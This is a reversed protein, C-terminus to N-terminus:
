GLKEVLNRQTHSVNIPLRSRPLMTTHRAGNELPRQPVYWLTRRIDWNQSVEINGYRLTKRIIYMGIKRVKLIGHM